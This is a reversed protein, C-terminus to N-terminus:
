NLGSAASNLLCGFIKTAELKSELLKELATRKTLYKKTAISQGLVYLRFYVGLGLEKLRNDFNHTERSMVSPRFYGTTLANYTSVNSAARYAFERYQRTNINGAIQSWTAVIQGDIELEINKNGTRGAVFVLITSGSNMSYM